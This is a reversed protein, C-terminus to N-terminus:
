WNFEKPREDWSAEFKAEFKARKILARAANEVAKKFAIPDNRDADFSPRNDEEGSVLLDSWVEIKYDHEKVLAGDRIHFACELDRFNLIYEKGQEIRYMAENAISSITLKSKAM